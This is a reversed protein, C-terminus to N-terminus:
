AQHNHFSRLLSISWFKGYKQFIFVWTTKTRKWKTSTWKGGLLHRSRHWCLGPCENPSFLLYCSIFHTKTNWFCSLNQLMKSPWKMLCLGRIESSHSLLKIQFQKKWFEHVHHHASYLCINSIVFEFFFWHEHIMLKWNAM